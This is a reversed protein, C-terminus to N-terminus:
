FPPEDDPLYSWLSEIESDDPAPADDEPLDGDPMDPWRLCAGDHSFGCTRCLRPSAPTIWGALATM